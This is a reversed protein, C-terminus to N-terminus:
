LAGGEPLDAARRVGGRGLPRLRRARRRPSAAVCISRLTPDSGGVLEGFAGPPGLIVFRTISGPPRRGRARWACATPARDAGAAGPARRRPRGGGAGACRDDLARCRSSGGAASSPAASPSGRLIASCRDGGCTPWRSSPGSTPTSGSPWTSWAAPRLSARTPSCRPAPGPWPGSASSSVPARRPRRCGGGRARHPLRAPRCTPPPSAWAPPPTCRRRRRSTGAPGLTTSSRPRAPPCRSAPPGPTPRGCRARLGGGHRRRRPRGPHRGAGGRQAPRHPGGRLRGRRACPPTTASWTSCAPARVSEPVLFRVDRCTPSGSTSSRSSSTAPCSTSTPSASPPAAAQRGPRDQPRQAAGPGRAPRRRGETRGHGRQATM